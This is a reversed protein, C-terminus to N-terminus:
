SPIMLFIKHADQRYGLTYRLYSPFVSSTVSTTFSLSVDTMKDWKCASIIDNIINQTEISKRAASFKRQM